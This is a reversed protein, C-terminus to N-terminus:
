HKALGKSATSRHVVTPRLRMGLLAALAVFGVGLLIALWQRSDATALTAKGGFLSNFLMSDQIAGFGLTFIAAGVLGGLVFFLGDLRGSGMGVLGTGPCYGAVAWGIGLIAGGVLVGTYASKISLHSADILGLWLGAFLVISSVGIGLLIAKALHMDTLTLMGVIKQPDAAGVRQLVFGFLLGLIIALFLTMM